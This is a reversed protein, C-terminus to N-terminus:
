RAPQTPATSFSYLRGGDAVSFRLRVARGAALQRLTAKGFQVHHRISDGQLTARGLVKAQDDLLEVTVPGAANVLLEDGEFQLPPTDLTGADVSVFGDVRLRARFIGGGTVRVGDRQNKGWSSCGYYYLLEDGVRLPGQSFETVYGGDNRGGNGGEPGNPLFVEDTKGGPGPFQVKHWHLGDESVVLKLFASGAASWPYNGGRHWIKLGGLWVSGYRWATSAYYEDYPRDGNTDAAPPVLDVRKIAALDLPADLRKVFAYARSRLANGPGVPKVSGFKISAM